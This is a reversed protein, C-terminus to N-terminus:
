RPAQRRDKVALALLQRIAEARSLKGVQRTRWAEVEALQRPALRVHVPKVESPLM